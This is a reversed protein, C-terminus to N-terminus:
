LAEAGSAVSESDSGGFTSHSAVSMAPNCWGREGQGPRAWPCEWAEPSPRESWRTPVAGAQQAVRNRQIRRLKELEARAGAVLCTLARHSAAREQPSAETAERALVLARGPRYAGLKCRAIHEDIAEIDSRDLPRGCAEFVGSVILQLALHKGDVLRHPTSRRPDLRFRFPPYPLMAIPFGSIPCVFSVEEETWWRTARGAGRGSGCPGPASRAKHEPAPAAGQRDVATPECFPESPTPPVALGPPAEPRVPCMRVPEVSSGWFGRAGMHRLESPLPVFM